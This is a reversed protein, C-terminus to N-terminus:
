PDLDYLREGAIDYGDVTRWRIGDVSHLLFVDM